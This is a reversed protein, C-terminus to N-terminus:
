ATRAPGSAGSPGAEAAGASATSQVFRVYGLALAVALGVAVIGFRALNDEAGFGRVVSYGFTLVGGLLLGDSFLAIRRLATLSLALIAVAAVAAIAAVNRSYLASQDRYERAVGQLEAPLQPGSFMLADPMRPEPYFAAIGVGVFAAAMLGIFVKYVAVLWASKEQGGIRAVM